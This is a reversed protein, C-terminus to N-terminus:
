VVWRVQNLQLGWEVAADPVNGGRRNQSIIQVTLPSAAVGSGKRSSRQYRHRRNFTPLFHWVGEALKTIGAVVMLHAYACKKSRRSVALKQKPLSSHPQTPSHVM